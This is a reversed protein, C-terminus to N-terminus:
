PTSTTRASANPYRSKWGSTDDAVRKACSRGPMTRSAWCPRPVTPWRTARRWRSFQTRRLTGFRSAAMALNEFGAKAMPLVTTEPITPRTVIAKMENKTSSSPGRVYPAASPNMVSSCAARRRRIVSAIARSTVPKM